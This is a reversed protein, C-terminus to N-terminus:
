ACRRYRHHLGGVLSEAVVPGREPPEVSRPEPANQALSQHPRARHYYELFSAVIQMLHAENLVIVHDLCERRLTGIWREVFPNQWPSCPAIVVEEIGLRELTRRLEHGYVGDRDRILYRPAEDFPFAQVVQRAVWAATPHTTVNVHVVRRRDHRLVVFCYLLRFTVTPVVCFDIAALTGVHNKLFTRWTQSPPQDRRRVMYKVVTAEALDHGLLRLEAQIRPAGWLPNDRSLRRILQRAEADILPRGPQGRSKWRWYYRFGQRHWRVVTAPAVILLASRWGPWLRALLIWFRRDHDHLRPKPVSRHLTALQQRLALNEAALTLRHRLLARLYMLLALIEHM